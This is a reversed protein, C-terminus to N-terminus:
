LKCNAIIIIIIRTEWDDDDDNVLRMNKRKYKNINMRTCLVINSQYGVVLFAQRKDRTEQRLDRATTTTNTTTAGETASNNLM